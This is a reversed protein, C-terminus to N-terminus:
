KAEPHFTIKVNRGDSDYKPQLDAVYEEADKLSLGSLPTATTGDSWTLKLYYTKVNNRRKSHNCYRM